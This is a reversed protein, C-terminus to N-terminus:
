PKKQLNKTFFSKGLMIEKPFSGVMKDKDTVLLAGIKYEAMVLLAEIVTQTPSITLLEKIDKTDIIQKLTKM